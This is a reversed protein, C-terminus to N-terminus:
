LAGRNIKKIPAESISFEPHEFGDVSRRAVERNGPITYRGCGSICFETLADKKLPRLFVVLQRTHYRQQSFTNQAGKLIM